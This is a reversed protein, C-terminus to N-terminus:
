ARELRYEARCEVCILAQAAPKQVLPAGCNPCKPWAVAVVDKVNVRSYFADSLVKDILRRSAESVKLSVYTM